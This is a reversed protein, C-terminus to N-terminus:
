KKGKGRKRPEDRVVPAPVVHVVVPSGDTLQGSPTVSSVTGARGGAGDYAYTPRLGLATLAARVEAPTKGVYSASAVSVTRPGSPSPAASTKAAPQQPDDGGCARLSLGLVVVALLV